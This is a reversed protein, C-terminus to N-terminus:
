FCYFLVFNIFVHTKDQTRASTRNIELSVVYSIQAEKITGQGLDYVPPAPPTFPASYGFSYNCSSAKALLLPSCLLVYNGCM